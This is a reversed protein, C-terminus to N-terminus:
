RWLGDTAVMFASTFDAKGVSRERQLNAANNVRREAEHCASARSTGQFLYGDMNESIIYIYIYINAPIAKPAISSSLPL